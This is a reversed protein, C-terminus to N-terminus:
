KFQSTLFDRARKPLKESIVAMSPGHNIMNHSHGTHQARKAADILSIRNRVFATLYSIDTDPSAKCVSGIAKYTKRVVDIQLNLFRAVHNLWDDLCSCGRPRDAIFKMLLSFPHDPYSAHFAPSDGWAQMLDAARYGGCPSCPDVMFQVYDRGNDSATLRVPEGRRPGIGVSLLAAALNIDATCLSSEGPTM